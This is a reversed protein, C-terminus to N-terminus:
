TSKAPVVVVVLRKRQKKRKGEELRGRERV